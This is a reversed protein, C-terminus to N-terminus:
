PRCGIWISYWRRGLAESVGYIVALSGLLIEKAVFGFLLAVALEHQIGIPDLVPALVDGMANALTRHEGAPIHSVLWVLVVGMLIFTSALELFARVETVARALMQRLSPLRYPPVELLFAESGQYRDKFVRASFMAVLFSLAYLSTLVWPAQHPTFLVGAFFVVVQLRASCLSFPIILMSLLRQNRERM